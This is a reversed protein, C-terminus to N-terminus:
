RQGEVAAVLVRKLAEIGLRHESGAAVRVFPVGHGTGSATLYIRTTDFGFSTGEVLPVRRRRAEYLIAKVLRVRPEHTDDEPVLGFTGGQFSLTRAVPFSPHEPLGPHAVRVPLGRRDYREALFVALERANRSLRTLRAQLLQRNPAPIQHAALDTLNTGLHERCVDLRDALPRPAIIMGAATRDLGLQAYKTLSEFVVLEVNIASPALALPQFTASRGTNDIVLRVLRDSRALHAIVRPLDPLALGAANCLSDLFVVEPRHEDIARLLRKTDTEEVLLARAGLPSRMILERCEHYTSTGVLVPRHPGPEMLLCGLITTFAAMGSSTAVARVDHGYPNDVYERLWAEELEGADPHRDRKYEDHYAHVRGTHRGAASRVAHSISPSHWDTAVILAATLAQRARLREAHAHKRTTLRRLLAASPVGTAERQLQELGRLQAGYHHMEAHVARAIEHRTAHQLHPGARDLDVLSRALRARASTGIAALEAFDARLDELSAARLADLTAHSM